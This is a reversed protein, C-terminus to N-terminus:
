GWKTLHVTDVRLPGSLRQSGGSSTMDLYVFGQGGDCEFHDLPWDGVKGQQQARVNHFSFTVTPHSVVDAVGHPLEAVVRWEPVYVVQETKDRKAYVVVGLLRFSSTPLGYRIVTGVNLANM